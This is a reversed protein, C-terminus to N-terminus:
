RFKIGLAMVKRNRGLQLSQRYHEGCTDKKSILDCIPCINVQRVDVEYIDRLIGSVVGSHCNRGVHTNLRKIISDKGSVVFLNGEQSPALIKSLGKIIDQHTPYVKIVKTQNRGTRVTTRQNAELPPQIPLGFLDQLFLHPDFGGQNSQTPRRKGSKPKKGAKQPKRQPKATYNRFEVPPPCSCPDSSTPCSRPGSPIPCSCPDSPSCFKTKCVKAM